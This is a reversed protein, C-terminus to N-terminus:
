IFVSKPERGLGARAKIERSVGPVPHVKFLLFYFFGFCWFFFLMM